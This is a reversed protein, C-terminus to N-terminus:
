ARGNPAAFEEDTRHLDQLQKNEAMTEAKAKRLEATALEMLSNLEKM